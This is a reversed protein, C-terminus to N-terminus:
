ASFFLKKGQNDECFHPDQAWMKQMDKFIQTEINLDELLEIGTYNEGRAIVKKIAEKFTQKNSLRCFDTFAICAKIWQNIHNANVSGSMQRWEFTQINGGTRGAPLFRKFGVSGRNFPARTKPETDRENCMFEAVEEISRCNWISRLQVRRLKTLSAEPVYDEMVLVGDDLDLDDNDLVAQSKVALVSHDTLRLWCKNEYRSPHHLGLIAEETLWYLTAFKKVTLLSFPEDGRGVHVHVSTSQNLHIRITKLVQCVDEIKTAYDHSYMVPSTLECSTWDYPGDAVTFSHTGNKSVSGDGGLRWSDYIVVNDHPPHYDDDEMTRFPVGDLQRLTELLQEYIETDLNRKTDSRSKFLHLNKIDPDPDERTYHISPLLFELEVGCTLTGTSDDQAEIMEDIKPISTM